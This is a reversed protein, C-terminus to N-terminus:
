QQKRELMAEGQQGFPVSPLKLRSTKQARGQCLDKEFSASPHSSPTSLKSLLSLTVSCNEFEKL